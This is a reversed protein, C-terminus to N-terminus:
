VLAAGPRGIGVLGYVRLQVYKQGEVFGSRRVAFLRRGTGSRGSGVSSVLAEVDPVEVGRGRGGGWAVGGTAGGHEAHDALCAALLREVLGLELCYVADNCTVRRGGHEWPSVGLHAVSALLKALWNATLVPGSDDPLAKDIRQLLQGYTPLPASIGTTQSPNPLPTPQPQPQPKPLSPCV